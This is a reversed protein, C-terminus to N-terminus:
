PDLFNSASYACGNAREALCFRAFVFSRNRCRGKRYRWRNEQVRSLLWGSLGHVGIGRGAVDFGPATGVLLGGKRQLALRFASATSCCRRPTGSSL